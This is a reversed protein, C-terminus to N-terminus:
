QTKQQNFYKFFDSEPSLFFRTNNDIFSNSYAQMSRYFAFFEPDKGYAKAFINNREADGQGRLQESKKKADAIIITVERDARSRIGQAAEAGQARYEAAERQRETQMRRYIAESNAQPLDASRIKVDIVEIGFKNAEQNVQLTIESMLEPRKDRVIDLFNSNALVRRVSSNLVISLRQQAQFSNRVTQYFRLANIIRYRSFADVVLRKQDSAQVEQTPSDLDLLRKDFYVVNQIFPLKVKLGSQSIVKKPNGFQLVIAQETQHVIFFMQTAAFIAVGMFVVLTIVIINKKM